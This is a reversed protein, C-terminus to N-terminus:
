IIIIITMIIIIMIIIISIIINMIISIIIIIVLYVHMMCAVIWVMDFMSQMCSHGTHNCRSVRIEKAWCSDLFVCM